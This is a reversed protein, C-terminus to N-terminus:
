GSQHRASAPRDRSARQARQARAGLAPRECPRRRWGRRSRRSRGLDGALARQPGMSAREALSAATGARCLHRPASRGLTDPSTNRNVDILVRLKASVDQALAEKLGPLDAVSPLGLRAALASDQGLVWTRTEIDAPRDPLVPIWRVEYMKPSSQPSEIPAALSEQGFTCYIPADLWYPQRRFPYTPLSVRRGGLLAFVAEWEVRHGTIHLGSLAGLLSEPETRDPRLVPHLTARQMGEISLCDAGAACLVGRPGLELFSRVGECELWRMSDLFRVPERVQRM